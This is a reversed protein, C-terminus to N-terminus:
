NIIVCQRSGIQIKGCLTAAGVTRHVSADEGGGINDKAAGPALRGSQLERVTYVGGM